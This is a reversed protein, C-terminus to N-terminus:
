LELIHKYARVAIEGVDEQYAYRDWHREFNM